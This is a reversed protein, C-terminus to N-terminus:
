GVVREHERRLGRTRQIVYAKVRGDVMGALLEVALPALQEGEREIRAQLVEVVERRKRYDVPRRNDPDVLSFDWLETGQYFDPVGPGGIKIALQALSNYIGFRTVRRVFEGFDARFVVNAPSLVMAVFRAMGNEHPESPNLWSTFVRVERILM